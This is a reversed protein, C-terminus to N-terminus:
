ILNYVYLATLVWIMHYCVFALGESEFIQIISKIYFELSLTCMHQNRFEASDLCLPNDGLWVGLNIEHDDLAM